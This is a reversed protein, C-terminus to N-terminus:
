LSNNTIVNNRAIWTIGLAIESRDTNVRPSDKEIIPDKFKNNALTNNSVQSSSSDALMIGAGNNLVM